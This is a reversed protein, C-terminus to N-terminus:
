QPLVEIPLEAAFLMTRDNDRAAWKLLSRVNKQVPGEFATRGNVVVSVARNLDFQDPSLLLTFAGVGTSTVRVTNGARVLDVRGSDRQPPFMAEAEGALVTPAYKGTLTVSKNGRAVAALVLRGPGYSGFLEAVDTGPPIPQNNIRVVVDGSQFGIHEANSGKLVRNIRTGSSRIGFDMAPATSRRNLDSLAPDDPRRAALRDIVLWHARSPV